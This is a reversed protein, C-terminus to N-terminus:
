EISNQLLIFLLSQVFRQFWYQSKIVSLLKYNLSIIQPPKTL